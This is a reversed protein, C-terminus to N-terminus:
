RPMKENSFWFIREIDKGGRKKREHSAYLTTSTVKRKIMIVMEIVIRRIM